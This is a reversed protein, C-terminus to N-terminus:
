RRGWDVWLLWNLWGVQLVCGFFAFFFFIIFQSALFSIIWAFSYLRCMHTLWLILHQYQLAGCLRGIHFVCVFIGM